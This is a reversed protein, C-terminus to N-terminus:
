NYPHFLVEKRSLGVSLVQAVRKTWSIICGGM